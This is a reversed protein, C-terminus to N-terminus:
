RGLYKQWTQRHTNPLEVGEKAAIAEILSIIKTVPVSELDVDRMDPILKILAPIIQSKKAATKPTEIDSGPYKPKASTDFSLLESNFVVLKDESVSLSDFNSLLLHPGYNKPTFVDRPKINFFGDMTSLEIDILYESPIAFFGRLHNAYLGIIKLDNSTIDLHENYKFLAVEYMDTIISNDADVREFISDEDNNDYFVNFTQEDGSEDIDNIYACIEIRNTAGFHLLDEVTCNLKRAAMPLPYYIRSIDNM